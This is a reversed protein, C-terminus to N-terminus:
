ITSAASEKEGARCGLSDFVTSMAWAEAVILRRKFERERGVVVRDGCSEVVIRERGADWIM